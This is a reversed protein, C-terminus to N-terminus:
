YAVGDLVNEKGGKIEIVLKHPLCIINEGTKSIASHHVCIKDPCSSQLMRIDNDACIFVNYEVDPLEISEWETASLERMTISDDSSEYALLYYVSESQELSIQGLLTEGDYSVVAYSGKMSHLKIILFSVLAAALIVFVLCIDAKRVRHKKDADIKDCGFM